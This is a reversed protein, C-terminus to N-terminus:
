TKQRRNKHTKPGPKHVHSETFTKPEHHVLLTSAEALQDASFNLMHEHAWNQRYDCCPCHWGDNKATLTSSDNPCTFPHFIGSAQYRTLNEVQEDTWRPEIM